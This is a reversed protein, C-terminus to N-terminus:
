TGTSGFGKTGRESEKVQEVLTFHAPYRPSLVLQAIRQGEQIHFPKKGLNMMIIKLEGRYGADITGPSNPLILGHNLALGSRPRVQLDFGTPLEIKLGTPIAKIEHPDLTYNIISCVDAGSDDEHAYCPLRAKPSIREIYVITKKMDEGLRSMNRIGKM